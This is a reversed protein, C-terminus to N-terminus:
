GGKGEEVEEWGEKWRNIVMSNDTDTFDYLVHRERLPKNLKACYVESGGMDNYFTLNGEKTCSLLVENHLHIM